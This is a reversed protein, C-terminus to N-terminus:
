SAGLVLKIEFAINQHRPGELNWGFDMRLRELARYLFLCSFLTKFAVPLARTKRVKHAFPPVGVRAGCILTYSEIRGVRGCTKRIYDPQHSTECQFM